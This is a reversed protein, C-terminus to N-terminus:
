MKHLKLHGHRGRARERGMPRDRTNSVRPIWAPPAPGGASPWTLLGAIFRRHTRRRAHGTRRRGVTGPCRSLACRPGRREGGAAAGERTCHWHAPRLPRAGGGEGACGRAALPARGGTHCLRGCGRLPPRRPDGGGGQVRHASCGGRQPRPLRWGGAGADSYTVDRVLASIARRERESRRSLTAPVFSFSNCQRKSTM